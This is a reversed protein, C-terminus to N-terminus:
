HSISLLSLSIHNIRNKVLSIFFIQNMSERATNSVSFLNFLLEGSGSGPGSSEAFLFINDQYIVGFHASLVLHNLYESFIEIINIIISPSEGEPVWDYEALDQVVVPRALEVVRGIHAPRQKLLLQLVPTQVTVLDCSLM